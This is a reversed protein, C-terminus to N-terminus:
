PDGTTTSCPDPCEHAHGGGGDSIPICFDTCSGTETPQTCGIHKITSTGLSLCLQAQGECDTNPGPTGDAPIPDPIAPKSCTCIDYPDFCDATKTWDGLSESWEWACSGTCSRIEFSSSDCSVVESNVTPIPAPPPTSTSYCLLEAFVEKYEIACTQGSVEILPDPNGSDESASQAMALIKHRKPRPYFASKTSYVYYQITQATTDLFAYGEDGEMDRINPCECLDCNITINCLSSGEPGPASTPDFGDYYHVARWNSGGSGGYAVEIHRAIKKSTKVLEWEVQTSSRPTPATYNEPDSAQLNTVRRLVCSSGAIGDLHHPNKFTVEVQGGSESEPENIEPPHDVNPYSSRIAEVDMDVLAIGESKGGPHCDKLVGYIENIPLSCEEIEYRAVHQENIESTNTDDEQQHALYSWGTAGSEIDSWLNFPDYITITDGYKLTEGPTNLNPPENVARLVKVQVARDVIKGTTVFQFRPLPKQLTFWREDPGQVVIVQEGAVLPTANTNIIQFTQATIESLVLTSPSATPAKEFLKLKATFVNCELDNEANKSRGATQEVVRALAIRGLFM